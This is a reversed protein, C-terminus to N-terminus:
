KIEVPMQVFSAVQENEYIAVAESIRKAADNMPLWTWGDQGITGIGAVTRDENVYFAQGLGVYMVTVSVRKDNSVERVESTVTIQSNFKNAQNLVGIINQFRKSLSQDTESPNEPFRQSLPKVQERVAPPMRDLLQLMRKELAAVRKELANAAKTYKENRGILGQREKDAETISQETKKIQERVSAIQQQVLDIRDKLMAEAEAWQQKEESITKRTEVWKSLMQRTGDLDVSEGGSSQQQSMVSTTLLGLAAALIGASTLLRSLGITPRQRLRGDDDRLAGGARWKDQKDRM